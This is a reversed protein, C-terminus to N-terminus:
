AAGGKPGGARGAWVVWAVFVVGLLLAFLSAPDSPLDDLVGRLTLGGDISSQATLSISSIHM